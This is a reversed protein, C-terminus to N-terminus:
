WLLLFYTRLLLDQDACEEVMEGKTCTQYDNIISHNLGIARLFEEMLEVFHPHTTRTSCSSRRSPTLPYNLSITGNEPIHVPMTEDISDAVLVAMSLFLFSRSRLTTEKDYENGHIDHKGMDVRTPIHHYHHYKKKFEKLIFKKLLMLMDNINNSGSLFDQMNICIVNYQNLHKFYSKSEAISLGAFLERSDCGSSYYAALMALNVSKGFRRPRSVCIYKRLTKIKSNTFEILGSKDVYMESNIAEQFSDNSPNLYIGM